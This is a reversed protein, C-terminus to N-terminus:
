WRKGLHLTVYLNIFFPRNPNAQVEDPSLQPCSINMINFTEEDIHILIPARKYFVDAAVGVEIAKVFEDFAKDFYETSKFEKNGNNDIEKLLPRNKLNPNLRFKSPPSASVNTISQGRKELGIM